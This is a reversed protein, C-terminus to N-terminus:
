SKGNEETKKLKFIGNKGDKRRHPMCRFDHGEHPYKHFICGECWVGEIFYFDFGKMEFETETENYIQPM